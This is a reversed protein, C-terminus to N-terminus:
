PSNGDAFRRASPKLGNHPSWTTTKSCILSSPTTSSTCKSPRPQAIEVAEALRQRGTRGTVLRDVVVEITHRMQRDLRLDDVLSVIEGDVRARVFGQKLLDDFLDRYEGKQQQILPSLVSFHTGRPLGAISEIIQESTQASISRGCRACAPHGVRAFLVRLYDQIETITGVTSRPNRSASKQSSPAKSM